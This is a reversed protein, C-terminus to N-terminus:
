NFSSTAGGQGNCAAFPGGATPLEYTTGAVTVVLSVRVCHKDSELKPSYYDDSTTASISWAHHLGDGTFRVTQVTGDANGSVEAGDAASVLTWGLPLLDGNPHHVASEFTFDYTAGLCTAAFEAGATAAGGTVRKISRGDTTLAFTAYNTDENQEPYACPPWGLPLASAGTSSLVVGACAIAVVVARPILRM